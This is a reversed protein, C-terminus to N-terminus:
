NLIDNTIARRGVTVFRTNISPIFNFIFFQKNDMNKTIKKM